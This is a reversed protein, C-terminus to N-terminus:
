RGGWGWSGGYPTPLAAGGACRVGGTSLALSGGALQAGPAFDLQAGGAITASGFTLGATSAFGPTAEFAAPGDDVLSGVTYTGALIPVTGIDEPELTLSAAAGNGTVTYTASGRAGVGSTSFVAADDAGPVGNSWNSATNWDGSGAIWSTTAM